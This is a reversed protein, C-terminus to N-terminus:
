EVEESTSIVTGDVADGDRLRSVGSVVVQEGPELGDSVVARPGLRDAIVVERVMARDDSIVFVEATEGAAATNGGVGSRIAATPVLIGSTGGGTDVTAGASLGSRIMDACDGNEWEIAVTFSGTQEDARSGVAEVRADISEECDRVRVTAPLGRSIDRIERRGVSADLRVRSMDVIRAVEVGSSLSAGEDIDAGLSAVQGSIPATITRTDLQDRASALQQEAGRLNARAQSVEAGSASGRERRSEVSQLESRASELNAEAQELSLEESRSPLEVLVDGSEVEDGLDVRVADIRGQTESLVGAERAGRIRGTMSVEGGLRGEVVEVAEVARAREDEAEFEASDEQEPSGCAVLTAVAVFVAARAVTSWGTTDNMGDQLKILYGSHLWM